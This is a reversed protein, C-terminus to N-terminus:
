YWFCDSGKKLLKVSEWCSRVSSWVSWLLFVAPFFYQFENAVLVHKSSLNVKFWWFFHMFINVRVSWHKETLTTYLSCRDSYLYWMQKWEHIFYQVHTKGCTKGFCEEESGLGLKEGFKVSTKWYFRQKRPLCSTFHRPNTINTTVSTHPSSCM